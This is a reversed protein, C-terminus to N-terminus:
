CVLFLGKHIKSAHLLSKIVRVSLALGLGLMSFM